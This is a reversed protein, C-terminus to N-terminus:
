NSTHKGKSFQTKWNLLVANIGDPHPGIAIDDDVAGYPDIFVEVFFEDDDFPLIKFRNQQVLVITDSARLLDDGIYVKTM